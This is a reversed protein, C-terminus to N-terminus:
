VNVIVTSKEPDWEVQYGFSEAIARIPVMTTSNILRPATDLSVADGNKYMINNGINMVVVTDGKTSIISQTDQVWEVEAKMAEFVVRLPVLTRGNEVVPWENFAIQRGDFIVDINRKIDYNYHIQADKICENGAAVSINEWDSISGEYYIDSLMTCGDFSRLSISKVTKPIVIKKLNTCGDFMEGFSIICGNKMDEGISELGSPLIISKLSTCGEFAGNYIQAISDPLSVSELGICGAFAGDGIETVSSPLNIRELKSCSEFVGGEIIRLSKPLVIDTLSSCSRFAYSYIEEVGDPIDVYELNKCRDFARLGIISIKAPIVVSKLNECGSFADNKMNVDYQIEFIPKNVEINDLKKCNVTELSTCGKFAEYGIGQINDSFSVEKLGTCNVFAGDCIIDVNDSLSIEKLGICYEFAKGGIVTVSDPITVNQLNIMNMFSRYSIYTIGDSIVVTSISETYEDWPTKYNTGSDWDTMRGTGSITLVGDSYRWRATIGCAGGAAESDASALTACTLLFLVALTAPILRILIKKLM